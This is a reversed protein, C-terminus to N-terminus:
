RVDGGSPEWYDSVANPSTPLTEPHKTTWAPASTGTGAPVTYAGTGDLYKTGDNPLKPLLGHKSTSANATTVDTFALYAENASPIYSM